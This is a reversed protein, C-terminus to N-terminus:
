PRDSGRFQEQESSAVEEAKTSKWTQAPLPSYFRIETQHYRSLAQLASQMMRRFATTMQALALAVTEKELFHRIKSNANEPQSV